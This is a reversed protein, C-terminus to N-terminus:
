GGDFKAMIPLRTRWVCADFNKSRTGLAQGDYSTTYPNSWYWVRGCPKKCSERYAMITAVPANGGTVYGYAYPPDVIYGQGVTEPDHWAGALHGVEHIFSFKDTLCQWNVVVFAKDKTVNIGAAIGCNKPDSNHVVLVGVDAKKKRRSNRLEQVGGGEKVLEEIDKSFDGSETFAVDLIDIVKVNGNVNSNEFARNAISEATWVLQRADHGAALAQQKADSTIGVSVELTETQAPNPCDDVPQANANNPAKPPLVPKNPAPAGDKKHPMDYVDNKSREIESTRSTTIAFVGTNLQRILYNQNAVNMAGFVENGEKLLFAQGDSKKGSKGIFKLTLRQVNDSLQTWAESVIRTCYPAPGDCLSLVSDSMAASSIKDLDLSVLQVDKLSKDSLLSQLKKQGAALSRGDASDPARIDSTKKLFTNIDQLSNIGTLPHMATGQAPQFPKLDKESLLRMADELSLKKNAPIQAHAGIMQSALVAVAMSSLSFHSLKM